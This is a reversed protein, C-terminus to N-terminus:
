SSDRAPALWGVRMDEIAGREPGGEPARGAAGGGVRADVTGGAAPLLPPEDIGAAAIWPRSSSKTRWDRARGNAWCASASALFFSNEFAFSWSLSAIFM